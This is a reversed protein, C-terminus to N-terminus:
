SEESVTINDTHGPLASEFMAALASLRFPKTVYYDVHHQRALHELVDTTYATILAVKAAPARVRIAQALQLGHMDPMNFDTVVLAVVRGDIQHLADVVNMATLVDYQPRLRRLFRGLIIGVDPEDDVLLVVPRDPAGTQVVVEPLPVTHFTRHDTRIIADM